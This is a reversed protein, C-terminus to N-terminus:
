PDAEQTRKRNVSARLAKLLMPNGAKTRYKLNEYGLNSSHIRRYTVAEPVIMKPVAADNVRCFWEVDSSIRFGEDFLGVLGFVQRRIVMAQLTGIYEKLFLEERAWLPREIGGDLFNRQMGLVYGIHPHQLLCDVQPNLKNGAWYDDADLFGILEGKTSHIGANRAAACGQNPQYLYRVDKFSQVIRSTDDTSGDDVVMIEMPGYGQMCISKIAEAIFKAGNYVPIIASVLPKRM